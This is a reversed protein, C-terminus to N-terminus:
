DYNNEKNMITRVVYLPREKVQMFINGIYVGIIGLSTLILGCVLYISAVITTYGITIDFFFKSFILYLIYLFSLAAIVVGFKINLFLLKESQSTLISFALSLRKKFNYSSKGEKRENHAVELVEQKFGLWKIYMVFARHTERMKLYNNIVIRKSISFNCLEEDYNDDTMWSYVKYFCKSIFIKMKNDQRNKRKAFVVDSETELLRNYLNIIEEPSDQLDCDMVVIYDGSSYELGATIAKIQGFNRSLEIGIVHKDKKCLQEIIEWSNQPCNDNVLIIEYDQTIKNLTTTLRQHLEMLAGRCGYVPVIVSFLM